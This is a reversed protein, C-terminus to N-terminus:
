AGLKTGPIAVFIITLIIGIIAILIILPLLSSVTLMSGLTDNVGVWSEDGRYYTYTINVNGWSDTSENHVVGQSNVSYNGSTILLDTTANRVYSIVPTNFGPDSAGSLTYTTTNIWATNDTANVYTDSFEEQDLFEQIVFFGAAIMIGVFVLTAVYGQLSGLQGKKRKM